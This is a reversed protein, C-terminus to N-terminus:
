GSIRRAVGSPLCRRALHLRERGFTEHVKIFASIKRALVQECLQSIIELGTVDKLGELWTPYNSTRRTRTPDFAARV